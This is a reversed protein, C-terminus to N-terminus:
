HCSIAEAGRGATPMAELHPSIYPIGLDLGRLILLLAIIATFVPLLRRVKSRYQISLQTSFLMLALMLPMTALGFVAMFGGAMLADGTAVAASLAVYVLGCPLLGNLMGLVLPAASNQRGVFAGMLPSLKNGIFLTLQNHHFLSPKFISVLAFFLMALGLVISLAQQWGALVLQQGVMGFLVGLLTYTITKGIFYLVVGTSRGRSGNASLPLSLAIPGCMGVCHLGGAMGLVLASIMMTEFM